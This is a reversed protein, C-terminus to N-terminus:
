QSVVLSWACWGTLAGVQVKRWTYGSVVQAADPFLTVTDGLKVEGIVPSVLSPASRLNIHTYGPVTFAKVTVTQPAPPVPVPAPIPSPNIIAEVVSRAIKFPNCGHLGFHQGKADTTPTEAIYPICYAFTDASLWVDMHHKGTATMFDFVYDRARGEVDAPLIFEGYNGVSKWISYSTDWQSIQVLQDPTLVTPFGWAAVTGSQLDGWSHCLTM